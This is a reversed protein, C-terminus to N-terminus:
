VFNNNFIIVDDKISNSFMADKRYVLVFTLTMKNIVRFVFNKITDLVAPEEQQQTKRRKCINANWFGFELSYKKDRM